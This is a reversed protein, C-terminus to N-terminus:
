LNLTRLRSAEVSGAPLISVCSCFYIDLHILLKFVDNEPLILFGLHVVCRDVFWSYVCKEM